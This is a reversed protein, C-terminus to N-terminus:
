KSLLEITQQIIANVDKEEVHKFWINDPMLLVNAGESCVDLCGTRSVRVRGKLGKEKISEKLLERLEAGGRKACCAGDSREYECVLLYKEFQPKSVKLKIYM